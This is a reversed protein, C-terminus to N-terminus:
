LIFEAAREASLMAGEIRGSQQINAFDGIVQFTSSQIEPMPIPNMFRSGQIFAIKSWDFYNESSLKTPVFNLNMKKKLFDNIKEVEIGVGPERPTLDIEVWTGNVSSSKVVQRASMTDDAYTTLRRNLSYGTTGSSAPLIVKITNETQVKAAWEKLEQMEPLDYLGAVSAWQPPPIALVLKKAVYTRRGAPGMFAVEYMSNMKKVSVLKWRLRVSRYTILGSIHESLSDIVSQMGNNVYFHTKDVATFPINYEKILNKFTQDSSTYLSAGYDFGHDSRIRGGLFASAEFIRYTMKNQRLKYALYMGAMGGGAIVTENKLYFSDEFIYEDLTSCASLTSFAAASGALKLSNLIFNRRNSRLKM